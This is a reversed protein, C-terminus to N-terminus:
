APRELDALWGTGRGGDDRSREEEALQLKRRWTDQWPEDQGFFTAMQLCGRRGWLGAARIYAAYDEVARQLREASVAGAGTARKRWARYAGKKPNSGSREPYADWAREFDPPYVYHGSGDRKLQDVKVYEPDVSGLHLQKSELQKCSSVVIRGIKGGGPKGTAPYDAAPSQGRNRLVNEWEGASLPVESVHWDYGALEGSSPDRARVMHLYGTDRLERLGSKVAARGDAHRNVLDQRNFSWGDPRSTLYTFLGVAKWSLRSDDEVAHLHISKYKSQRHVRLVYDAM